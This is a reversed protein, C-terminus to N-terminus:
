KQSTPERTVVRTYTHTYIHTCTCVHCSVHSTLHSIHSMRCAAHATPHSIRSTPHSVHSKLCSAQSMLYSVYSIVHPIHSLRLVPIYSVLRRLHSFDCGPRGRVQRNGNKTNSPLSDIKVSIVPYLYKLRSYGRRSNCHLLSYFITGNFRIMPRMENKHFVM